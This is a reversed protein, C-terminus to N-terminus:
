RKVFIQLVYLPEHLRRHDYIKWIGSLCVMQLAIQHQRALFWSFVKWFAPFLVVALNSDLKIVFQLRNRHMSVSITWVNSFKRHRQGGISCTHSMLKYQFLFPGCVSRQLQFACHIIEACHFICCLFCTVIKAAKVDNHLRAICRNM